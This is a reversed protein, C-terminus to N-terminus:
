QIDNQRDDIMSPHIQRQVLIIIIFLESVVWSAYPVYSAENKNCHRRRMEKQGNVTNANFLAPSVKVKRFANKIKAKWDHWARPRELQIVASTQNQNVISFWFSSKLNRSM